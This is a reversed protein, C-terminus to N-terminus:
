QCLADLRRLKADSPIAFRVEFIGGTIVDVSLGVAADLQCYGDALENGIGIGIRIGIRIRGGIRIWCRCRFRRISRDGDSGRKREVQWFRVRIRHNPALHDDHSLSRHRDATTRISVGRCQGVAARYRYLIACGDACCDRDVRGIRVVRGGNDLGIDGSIADGDLGHHDVILYADGNVLRFSHIDHVVGDKDSVDIIQSSALGDLVHRAATSCQTTQGVAGIVIDDFM